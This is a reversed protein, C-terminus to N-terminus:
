NHKREERFKSIYFSFRVQPRDGDENSPRNSLLGSIKLEPIKYKDGACQITNPKNIREYFSTLKESPIGNLEKM